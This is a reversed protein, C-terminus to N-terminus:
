TGSRVRWDVARISMSENIGKLTVNRAESVGYPINGAAQLLDSSAVIEEQNAVAGIRAAAHVGQGSYDGSERTAEALHVGIRVWPAFGHEQRHAHLLRQIKVACDIATRPETFAAFFGDGTHRVVEGGSKEIADRLTRNHWHLLNEWAADGILGILDTSTVIDTFMFSRSVRDRRTESSDGSLSELRKLDLAAGLNGFASAASRFELRAAAANGQALRAQGLLTRAQASEYPLGIDLWLRWARSLLDAARDPHGEALELAGRCTMASAEWTPGEFVGAIQELETVAQRATALDGSALAIEAEAPLLHARSLSNSTGPLPYATDPRRVADAISRAAEELEGKNLLLLSLGPQADHGHEFARMFADEASTLDGMRRRVEGIEYQAFGVGDIIHFRELENCAKRADQEAESWSGRLRKLEARHVQCIGPYGGVSHANMWRDAKDTWEGARRYDGLNRCIAITNCYVDSAARLDDVDSSAIAGAEDVFKLGNRWDGSHVMAVGKFSLGLAQMGPSGFKRGLTIAEDAHTMAGKLDNEVMLKQATNMVALWGHGFSEPQGELLREVRAMWGQSIAYSLRRMAFYALRAGISAAQSYHGQREYATFARELVEDAEDPMASWWLADALLVLDDPALESEQEAASLSTVAESWQNKRVAQRGTELLDTLGSM